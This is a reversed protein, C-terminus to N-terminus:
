LGKRSIRYTLETGNRATVFMIEDSAEITAGISFWHDAITSLEQDVRQKLAHWFVSEGNKTHWTHGQHKKIQYM